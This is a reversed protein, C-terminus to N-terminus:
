TARGKGKTDARLALFDRLNWKQADASPSTPPTGDSDMNLNPQSRAFHTPRNPGYIVDTPRGSACTLQAVVRLLLFSLQERINGIGGIGYGRLQRARRDTEIESEEDQEGAGEFSPRSATGSVLSPDVDKRSSKRRLRSVSKVAALRGQVWVRHTRRKAPILRSTEPDLDALPIDADDKSRYAAKPLPLVTALDDLLPPLPPPPTYPRSRM